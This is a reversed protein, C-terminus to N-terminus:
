QQLIEEITVATLTIDGIQQLQVTPRQLEGPAVPPSPDAPMTQLIPPHPIPSQVQHSRRDLSKIKELEQELEQLKRVRVDIAPGYLSDM